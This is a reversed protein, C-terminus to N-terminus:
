LNNNEKEEQLKQLGLEYAKTVFEIEKKLNQGIKYITGKGKGQKDLYSQAVFKDILYRVQRRTLRGELIDIFDKMKAQQFKTFHKILLVLVQEDDWDTQKSYKGKQDTFEHYEKSLVYYSGKTKGKKEVLGYDYLKTINAEVLESKNAGKRIKELEIIDFVSLKKDDASNEQYDSIFLAFAKDQIQSPVILHVQFDDSFSYDPFGKAESICHFYIKDVGQGSREVIGTKALVDALLRNRPTSNVRLLNEKNVGQPFSGPSIIEFKSPYLKILTESELNYNRHTVANNVSERVVEKNLQLIDFIYPGHQIPFKKNRSDITDWLKDIMLYYAGSFSIRNDFNISSEKERYEFNIASQPLCERIKEKKGLLILAAYTLKDNHMLDFDTLVQEVSLTLFYKNAQKKAYASKMKNIAEVDLDELKLGKCIKASFDPEKEQLIKLYQEDSMPLLEEGVRMLAVDEFKYIRGAPRSPIEIILVRLNNEDYLEETEIRIGTDRYIREKLLGTNDKSQNSGVIEHKGSSNEKIGFVLIGGGENAFAIVYGLICKRRKSIEPKKGGNFSFNGGKDEKFEVRDEKENLTILKELTM